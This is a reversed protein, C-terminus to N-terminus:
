CAHTTNPFLVLIMGETFLPFNHARKLYFLILSGPPQPLLPSPMPHTGAAQSTQVQM